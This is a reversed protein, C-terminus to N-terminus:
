YSRPLGLLHEALQNLIMENNLPATKFLRVSTWLDILHHDRVFGSGGHTQIAADVAAIALESAMHKAMDAYHGAEPAERDFLWAAKYALLRTAEQTIKVRALPHQVGQYAGIPTEGFVKRERAYAVAKSLAFESLGVLAAAILIREPNLAQFLVAAGRQDSGIRRAMPVEVEDFYLMFQRYGELGFTNMRQKELGRANADVLFLGLEASKPRAQTDPPDDSLMRAVVLIFDAVDAGTIWGKGGTLRYVEGDRRARTKMRFANTGADPETIAFACKCSGAAIAPLWQAKQATTGGRLLAMATMSSLVCFGNPLGHRAFEELALAMGLVGLGSGGYEVPVLAGILGAEAMAAWVEEPFRQEEYIMRLHRDRQPELTRLLRRATEVVMAQDESLTFHLGSMPTESLHRRDAPSEGIFYLSERM